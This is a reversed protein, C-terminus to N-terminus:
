GWSAVGHLPWSARRAAPAVQCLAVTPPPGPAQCSLLLHPQVKYRCIPCLPLCHAVMKLELNRSLPKALTTCCYRPRTCAADAWHVTAGCEGCVPSLRKIACRGALWRVAPGTMHGPCERSSKELCGSGSDESGGGTHTMHLTTTYEIGPESLSLTVVNGHHTCM